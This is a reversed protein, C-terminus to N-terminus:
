FYVKQFPVAGTVAKTCKKRLTHDSRLAYGLGVVDDNKKLVVKRPPNTTTPKKQIVSRCFFM